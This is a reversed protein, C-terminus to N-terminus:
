LQICNLFIVSVTKKLSFIDNITTNKTGTEIEKFNIVVVRKM